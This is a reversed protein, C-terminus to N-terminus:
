GSLTQTFDDQTPGPFRVTEFEFQRMLVPNSRNLGAQKRLGGGGSCAGPPSPVHGGPAELVHVDTM